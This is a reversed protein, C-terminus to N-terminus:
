ELLDWRDAFVGPEFQIGTLIDDIWVPNLKKYYQEIVYYDGCKIPRWDEWQKSHVLFGIGSIDTIAPTKGFCRKPFIGWDKCDVKWLLIDNEDSIHDAMVQISDPRMLKDDDDLHLIWGDEVHKIMENFYLNVPYQGDQEGIQIIKDAEIYEDEERDSSVIHTIDEYNQMLISDRCRKFYNPRNHTRTLINVLM